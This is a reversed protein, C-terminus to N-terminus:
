RTSTARYAARAAFVPWSVSFRAPGLSLKGGPSMALGPRPHASSVRQGAERRHPSFPPIGRRLAQVSGLPHPRPPQTLNKDASAPVIKVLLAFAVDRANRRVPGHLM